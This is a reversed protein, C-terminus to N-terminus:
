KCDLGGFINPRCRIGTDTDFGGFTNSRSRTGNSFDFGGQQNPRSTLGNSYDMGGHINPRFQLKHDYDQGGFINGRTSVIQNGCRIDLGKHINTRSSCGESNLSLLPFMTAFAVLMSGM